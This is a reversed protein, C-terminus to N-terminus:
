GYRVKVLPHHHHLAHQLKAALRLLSVLSRAAHQGGPDVVYVTLLPCGREEADGPVGAGCAGAPGCANIAAGGNLPSENEPFTFRANLVPKLLSCITEQFQYSKYSVKTM